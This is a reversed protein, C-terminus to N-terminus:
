CHLVIDGDQTDVEIATLPEGSIIKGAIADEVEKRIVRRLDRAGFKGGKAKECLLALAAETWSLGIGKAALPEKYEGLMLAAIRKLSEPSLPAFTAIEDVRSMFEPRLFEGLAKISKDRSMQAITRNFGTEGTKDGSGANSTMCIVTNEFNVTRGQADNIKGEDLIQLLLNMVDPHAKEIEDFLVVSYPKRRVKETLQGAEDYGVYGPPSGILRSVTHKEMFESMDLRILPDVTDFLQLALQKVLETKGVGTPGVFIFSAPRRRASIDARSRKVASAVLHVAEPQGIIVRNLNEELHALKTYETEKVKAAPIGTWLEIVKAVDEMTVQIGDVAERQAPLEAELRIIESKIQALKEYDPGEKAQEQEAEQEKLGALHKENEVWETIEPHRLSCCACAEDLLDIAKDPLFRDTIYRESLTVTSRAIAESVKVHHYAEYYQRIGAIVATADDISPEEIKVPQFRRELAQDKEIYKRYEAFTTAGIVQIEGRSLAPKLINAANMAGESDGAGTINHIEDIFLIVNGAAKVEGILGKVRSEFQGRFQTGAVLSTLDLLYIEKDRLRAPVNGEAIHLAIGEAIATKGVGAEGVLCPNNKQRRSLIQVTRYIERDRGVIRDLKGDRAKRTLNECYNDLFKRKKGRDNKSKVEKEPAEEAKRRGGFIGFPFTANGGPTFDGDGGEDTDDDPAEDGDADDQPAMMGLQQMMAAPDMDGNEMMGAFREEMAELDQDSIGFQKMIDDVPKIGLERACSLCYGESKAEGAELKQVFVIAPRKKCRVCLM